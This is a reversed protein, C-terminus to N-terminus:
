NHTRFVPKIAPGQLYKDIGESLAKKYIKLSKEAADLTLKLEADGHAFSQAIWPILVGNKIMEQSFLTRFPFSVAGSQDKTVYNMAVFGGDSYFHDKLGLSESVANFGNFLKEGFQWLHNIVNQEKYIKVAEIFAGMGNMEAGHTTSILFTREAGSKNIAGLEMLERKGVLAAVAFGNAMGKGFTSIDAEVGFYKQAGNLHWRFGTIMEDLIFVAGNKRCTAKVLHLFNGGETEIPRITTAPELMVAAIQGPYQDFLKELSKIDNYDFLLTTSYHEEPIGKKIATVGIFWDDFSFFPHQRPIAVYKRGTYARAIKVAASTVNSGNKAFKVMEAGEILSVMTEAAELEITTARTLNVGNEIERIAAKNVQDNAYGLTVARLAMGFDLYKNGQPDWIYAGKGRSLIQPANSPYQDDGRSYTHAGGPIIAHLRESYSKM